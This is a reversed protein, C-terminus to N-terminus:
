MDNDEVTAKITGLVVRFRDPTCAYVNIEDFSSLHFVYEVEISEGKSIRKKIDKNENKDFSFNLQDEGQVVYVSFANSASCNSDTNNTYIGKVTVIGEEKDIVAEKLELVSNEYEAVNTLSVNETVTEDAETQKVCATLCLMLTIALIGKFFKNKM